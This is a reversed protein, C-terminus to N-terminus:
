PSFAKIEEFASRNGPLTADFSGILPSDLTDFVFDVFDHLTICSRKGAQNLSESLATDNVKWLM